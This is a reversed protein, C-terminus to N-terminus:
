WDALVRNWNNRPTDLLVVSDDKEVVFVCVVFPSFFLVGFFGSTEWNYWPFGKPFDDM